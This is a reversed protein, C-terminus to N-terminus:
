PMWGTKAASALGRRFIRLIMAVWFAGAALVVHVGVSAAITAGQVRTSTAATM